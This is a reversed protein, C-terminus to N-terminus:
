GVLSSKERGAMRRWGNMARNSDATRVTWSRSAPAPEAHAAGILPRIALSAAIAVIFM